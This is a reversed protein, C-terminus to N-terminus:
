KGTKIDACNGQTLKSLYHAALELDEPLTIKINDTHGEILKPQHGCLEIASAEDTVIADTELAQFLATKLLGYRFMQPTQAQWLGTRDITQDVLNNRQAKKLTDRVPVALLGGVPHMSLENILKDIDTYRLCPRAADHVLVWDDQTIRGSLAKLGNYVSHCREKGGEIQIIPKTTTINIKPWYPDGKSVAVVVGDIAPHVLLANLTHELVTKDDIELYQKPIQAAMRSGVGAAPVVAWYQQAKNKELNNM